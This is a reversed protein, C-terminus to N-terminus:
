AFSARNVAVLAAVMVPKVVRTMPLSWTGPVGSRICFMSRSAGSTDISPWAMMATSIWSPPSPMIIKAVVSARRAPQSVGDPDGAIWASVEDLLAQNM